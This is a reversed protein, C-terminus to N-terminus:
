TATADPADKLSEQRWEFVNLEIFVFAVLWLFADWFDVFEGEFGWYVAAAFLTTYFVFKLATSVALVAGQLRDREQLRVDIELLLVVLLWVASNIVDAWALRFIEAFGQRDVVAATDPFEIFSTAASLTACNANTITEYDDLNLRYSWQEAILSCLDTVGPFPEAGYVFLLRTLYGYFAYVIVTYCAVRVAHLTLTIRRTFHRDELVYTELEFMLLLIVWAATDITAAFGEIVDALRLGDNFRHSLAQWEDAFFLFINLTLLAYVAYKFLQYIRQGNLNLRRARRFPSDRSEALTGCRPGHGPGPVAVPTSGPPRLGKVM